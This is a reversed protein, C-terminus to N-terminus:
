AQTYRYVVVREPQLIKDNKCYGEEISEKITKDKSVDDTPEVKAAHIARDFVAGPATEYADINQQELLDTLDEFIYQYERRLDDATMQEWVASGIRRKMEKRVKIISKMVQDVYRGTSDSRYSELEKHLRDIMGDKVEIQNKILSENM